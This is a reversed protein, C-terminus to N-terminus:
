KGWYGVLAGVVEKAEECPSTVRCNGSLELKWYNHLVHSSIFYVPRLFVLCAGGTLLMSPKEPSWGSGMM